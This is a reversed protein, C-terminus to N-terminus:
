LLFKKACVFIQFRVAMGLDCSMTVSSGPKVGLGALMSLSHPKALAFNIWAQSLVSSNQLFIITATTSVPMSPVWSSKCFM